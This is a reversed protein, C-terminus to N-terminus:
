RFYRVTTSSPTKGYYSSQYQSSGLKQFVGGVSFILCFTCFYNKKLNPAKEPERKIYKYYIERRSRCKVCYEHEPQVEGAPYRGSSPIFEQTQTFIEHQELGLTSHRAPNSDLALRCSGLASVVSSRLM